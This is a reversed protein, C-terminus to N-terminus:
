RTRGSIRRREATSSGSALQVSPAPTLDLGRDDGAQLQVSRLVNTGKGDTFLMVLYAGPALGEQSFKGLSDAVMTYRWARGSHVTQDSIVQIMANALPKGDAGVATGHLSAPGQAHAGTAMLPLLGFM